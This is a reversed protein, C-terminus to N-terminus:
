LSLVVPLHSPSPMCTPAGGQFSEAGSIRVSSFAAGAYSCSGAFSTDECEVYM